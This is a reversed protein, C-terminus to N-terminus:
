YSMLVEICDKTGGYQHLIKAIESCKRKYTESDIQALVDLLRAPRFGHVPLKISVGLTEQKTANYDREFHKGPITISPLGHLLTTLMTDQGGHFIVLSTYKMISTASIYKVFKVNKYDEQINGLAYHYGCSCIVKYKSKEFTDIIISRYLDPKLASVSLYMFILPSEGIWEEYNEPLHEEEDDLIYGTFKVDKIAALEPELQPITPALKIDSRMYLLECLNDIQSMHYQKLYANYVNTSKEDHEKNSKFDPHCPWSAISVHPVNAYTACICATPRAESFIVTPKFDKIADIEAHIAAEIFEDDAMGTWEIFDVVNKIDVITKKAIPLPYNYVKFGHSEILKALQGGMVFAVQAGAEVLKKAIGICKLTSGLSGSNPPSPLILVKKVKCMM